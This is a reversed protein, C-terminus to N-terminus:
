GPPRPRSVGRFQQVAADLDGHASDSRPLIRSPDALFTMVADGAANLVEQESFTGMQRSGHSLGIKSGPQKNFALTFSSDPGVFEHKRRKPDRVFRSLGDLLEVMALYIMMGQDPTRGASTVASGNAEVSLDGLEFGNPEGDERRSFTFKLPM